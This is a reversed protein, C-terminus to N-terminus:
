GSNQNRYEAKENAKLPKENSGSPFCAEQYLTEPGKQRAGHKEVTSDRSHSKGLVVQDRAVCHCKGRRVSGIDHADTNRRRAMARGTGKAKRNATM